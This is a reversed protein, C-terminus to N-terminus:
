NVHQQSINEPTLDALDRKLDAVDSKLDDLTCKLQQIDCTLSKFEPFNIEDPRTLSDVRTLLTSHSTVLDCCMNKINKIALVLENNEDHKSQPVTSPLSSIHNELASNVNTSIQLFNRSCIEKIDTLIEESLKNALNDFCKAMENFNRNNVDLTSRQMSILDNNEGTLETIKSILRDYMSRLLFEIQQCDTCIFYEDLSPHYWSRTAGICAGHLTRNCFARCKVKKTAMDFNTCNEMSCKLDM